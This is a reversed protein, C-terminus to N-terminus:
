YAIKELRSCVQCPQRMSLTGNACNSCAADMKYKEPQNTLSFTNARTWILPKTKDVVGTKRFGKLHKASAAAEVGRLERNYANTTMSACEAQAVSTPKDACGTNKRTLTTNM